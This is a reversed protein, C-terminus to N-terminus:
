ETPELGAAAGYPAWTPHSGATDDPASRYIEDTALNLIHLEDDFIFSIVDPDPGWALSQRSRAFEGREGEPPFVRRANTGDSGTLWLIYDGDEGDAPDAARLLALQEGDSDIAPSWTAASWIGVNMFPMSVEGTSTDAVALNFGDEGGANATFTLFRGDSSWSLAPVWAWDAGTDYAPFTHLATRDPETPSVFGAADDFTIDPIALIGVEDAFAYALRDGTPSWAYEGGWWGFAVATTGILRVPAPQNDDLAIEMLWLDNNAEWGPPLSVSRATTYAIRLPDLGAPDWGAWLVNEIQLARPRGGEATPIVWLRNRFEVRNTEEASSITYLLYNGGPSLQFVRGDLQGEIPLQRASDTSRELLIARGNDIYALRGEIPMAVEEEGVGIMVIEDVPAEIITVATPWREAELGDRFVIRYSIEKLGAVGTQLIRPPDDPTMEASRVIRREYPVSEPVVELTETVRVITIAPPEGTGAEILSAGRPPEVEDFPGLDIGAGDLADAVTAASTTIQRSEGDATVTLTIPTPQPIVTEDTRVATTCSAMLMLWSCLFAFVIRPQCAHFLTIPRRLIARGGLGSEM